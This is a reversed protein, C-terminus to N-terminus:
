FAEQVPTIMHIPNRRTAIAELHLRQRAADEKRTQPSFLMLCFILHRKPRTEIHALINRPSPLGSDNSSPASVLLAVGTQVFYASLGILRPPTM